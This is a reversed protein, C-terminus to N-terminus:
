GVFIQTIQTKSHYNGFLTELLDSWSSGSQVEYASGCRSEKAPLITDLLMKDVINEGLFQEWISPCFSKTAIIAM